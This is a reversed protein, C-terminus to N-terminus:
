HGSLPVLSLRAGERQRMRMEPRFCGRGEKRRNLLPPRCTAQIGKSCGRLQAILFRLWRAALEPRRVRSQRPRATRTCGGPAQVSESALPRGGPGPAMVSSSHCPSRAEWPPRLSEEVRVEGVGM